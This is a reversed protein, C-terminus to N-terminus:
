FQFIVATPIIPLDSFVKANEPNKGGKKRAEPSWPRPRGSSLV